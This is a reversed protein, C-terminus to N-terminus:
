RHICKRVQYEIISAEAYNLHWGIDIILNFILINYIYPKM